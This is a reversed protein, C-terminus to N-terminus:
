KGKGKKPTSLFGIIFGLLLSLILLFWYFTRRLEYSYNLEIQYLLQYEEEAFIVLSPFLFTLLVMWWIHKRKEALIIELITRLLFSIVFSIALGGFLFGAIAGYVAIPPITHGDASVTLPFCIMVLIFCIGNRLVLYKREFM